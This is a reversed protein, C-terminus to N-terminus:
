LQNEEKEAVGETGSVLQRDDIFRGYGRIKGLVYVQRHLEVIYDGLTMDLQYHLNLLAEIGDTGPLVFIYESNVACFLIPETKHPYFSCQVRWWHFLDVPQRGVVKSKEHAKM